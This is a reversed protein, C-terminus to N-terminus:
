NPNRHYWTKLEIATRTSPMCLAFRRADQRSTIVAAFTTGRVELDEALADGLERVSVHTRSNLACFVVPAPMHRRVPKPSTFHNTCM